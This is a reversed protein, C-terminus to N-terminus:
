VVKLILYSTEVMVCMIMLVQASAGKPGLMQSILNYVIKMGVLGLMMIAPGHIGGSRTDNHGM